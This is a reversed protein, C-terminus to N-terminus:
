VALALYDAVRQEYATQIAGLLPHDVDFAWQDIRAIPLVGPSTGTLFVANVQGLWDLLIPEERVPLELTFCIRLVQARTIGPLVATVPPTFLDGDRIFFVNSRSGETIHGGQDVLLVEYLNKERILDDARGRLDRNEVKANPVPREAQLLGVEVGLRYDAATPYRHPIFYVIRFPQGEGTPWRVGVFVNGFVVKNAEVLLHIDSRVDTEEWPVDLGKIHISRLLRRFHDELFLPIGDVLRLVEYVALKSIDTDTEAAPILTGNRVAFSYLSKIM